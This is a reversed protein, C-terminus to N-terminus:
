TAPHAAPGPNTPAVTRTLQTCGDAIGVGLYRGPVGRRSRPASFANGAYFVEIGLDDIARISEVARLRGSARHSVVVVGAAAAARAAAALTATSTRAGLVRCPWGQYRLLVATAELRITQADGPGCALLIPRSRAPAPAFAARRDLWSRVAETAMREQVVDCQGVALWVGIQRTAPLLVEDICAALGLTAAAEDLLARISGADLREAAGLIRLILELAPGPGGLLRRVSRAAHDAHQGGAIEDRMLRLAKVEEPAYRRRQGPGRGLTPIGYRLEWLRLTPTPVGVMQVVHELPVRRSDGVVVDDGTSTEM